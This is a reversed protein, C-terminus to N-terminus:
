LLTSSKKAVSRRTLLRGAEAEALYLDCLEAVTTANRAARMEAAPDAGDAVEGLISKAKRRAEEPTWPSGHRGIKQWRQRGDKTRYKLYYTVAPGRQRRACFGAVAGTGIDWITEGPGLARAERLGILKGAMDGRLNATLSWSAVLVACVRVFDPNHGCYM